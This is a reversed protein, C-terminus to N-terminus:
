IIDDEYSQSIKIYTSSSSNSLSSTKTTQEHISSSIITMPTFQPSSSFLSSFSPTLNYKKELSKKQTKQQFYFIFCIILIFIILCILCLILIQQDFQIFFQKNCQSQILIIFNEYILFSNENSLYINFTYKKFNSQIRLTGNSYIILDESSNRISFSLNKYNEIQIQNTNNMLCYPSSTKLISKNEILIEILIFDTFLSDNAIIYFQFKSIDKQYFRKKTYLNGNSNLEILNKVNNLYNPHIKYIIKDNKDKDEAQIQAFLTGIVQNEEIYLRTFNTRFKVPNDNLDIVQISVSIATRHGVLDEAIFTFNYFSQQEYDLTKTIILQDQQNIYFINKDKENQFQIFLKISDNEDLDLTKITHLIFNEQNNEQIYFLYNTNLDFIPYCDNIDILYLDFKRILVHNAKGHDYIILSFQYFSKLERDFIINTRIIFTNNNIKELKVISDLSILDVSIRGNEDTDKDSITLYIISTNISINEYIYIM